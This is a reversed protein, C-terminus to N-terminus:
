DASNRSISVFACRSLDRSCPLCCACHRASTLKGSLWWQDQDELYTGDCWQYVRVVLVNDRDPFVHSTVDFEAANRSGQSYGVRKNNVFLDFASDVGDFRLRIQSPTKWDPPIRFLTRYTGVPNDTPVFPPDIPFPYPVNTYHPNGYGQLQWHGPVEITQWGDVDHLPTPAFQFDWTGNLLVSEEPIWYSRAPLRNRQVVLQNCYDPNESYSGMKVRVVSPASWHGLSGFSQTYIITLDLELCYKAWHKLWVHIEDMM